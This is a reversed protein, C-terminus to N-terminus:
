HRTVYDNSYATDDSTPSYVNQAEYISATPRPTNSAPRTTHSDSHLSYNDDDHLFDYRMGGDGAGSEGTMGSYTGSNDTSFTFDENRNHTSPQAAYSERHSRHSTSTAYSMKKGAQTPYSSKPYSSSPTEQVSPLNQAYVPQQYAPLPSSSSEQGGTYTLSPHAGTPQNVSPRRSSATAYGSDSSLCDPVSSETMELLGTGLVVPNKLNCKRSLVYLQVDKMKARGAPELTTTVTERIEYDKGSDPHRYTWPRRIKDRKLKLHDVM